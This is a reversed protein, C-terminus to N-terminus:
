FKYMILGTTLKPYFFTTKPPLTEGKRVINKLTNINIPNLLFASDFKGRKVENIAEQSSNTYEINSLETNLCKKFLIEELILVDLKDTFDLIDKDKKLIKDLIDKKIKLAYFNKSKGDFMAFTQINQGCHAKIFQKIEKLTDCKKIKFFQRIKKINNSNNKFKVMRHTPLISLGPDELSTFYTMIYDYPAPKPSKKEQHRLKQYQQAVELRHHGDAVYLNKGEMIEQITNVSVTDRLKWLRNRANNIEVDIFPQWRECMSKIYNTLDKTNSFLTFIPSLNTQVQNLLNLRDKKPELKTKEHPFIINDSESSLHYLGIFGWRTCPKNLITYDQAYIYFCPSEDQTLINADLWQELYQKARTYKNDHINDNPLEKGLILRIINFSSQMYLESQKKDSIIDYPPALVKNLKKIKKQNYTIGKFPKVTAM